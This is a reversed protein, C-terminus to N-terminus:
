WPEVEVIVFADTAPSRDSFIGLVRFAEGPRISPEIRADRVVQAPLPKQLQVTFVDVGYPRGLAAPDEVPSDRFMGQLTVPPGFPPTVVVPDGFVDNLIGAMGDFFSAGM